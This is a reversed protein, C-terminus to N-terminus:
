GGFGGGGSRGGSNSGFGGRSGGGFGGGSRAAPAAAAPAKFGNSGGGNSKFRSGENAKFQSQSKNPNSLSPKQGNNPANTGSKNNNPRYSPNKSVTTQTRVRTQYGRAYGSSYPRGYYSHYSHYGGYYGRHYGWYPHYYPHPMFMYHLFLLQGFTVGPQPQYTYQYNTGCYDPTGNITYSTHQPNINLTAVVVKDTKTEDNVTMTNADTQDVKLYDTNNDDDLDLNNIKNGPENLKQTLMDPNTCTQLLAAFANVDFGPINDAAQVNVNQATGNNNSVTVHNQAQAQQSSNGCSAIGFATAALIVFNLITKRM